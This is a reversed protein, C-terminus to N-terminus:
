RVPVLVSIAPPEAHARGTALRLAALAGEAARRARDDRATSPTRATSSPVEEPGDDRQLPPLVVGLPRLPGDCPAAPDIDPDRGQYLTVTVRTETEDIEVRDLVECPEGRSLFTVYMLEGDWSGYELWIRV